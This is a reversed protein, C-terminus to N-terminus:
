FRFLHSLLKEFGLICEGLLLQEDQFFKGKMESSDKDEDRSSESESDSSNKRKKSILPTLSSSYVDLADGTAKAGKEIQYNIMESFARNM